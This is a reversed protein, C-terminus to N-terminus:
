HLIRFADLIERVVVPMALLFTHKGQARERGFEAVYRLDGDVQPIVLLFKSGHEWLLGVEGDVAIIVRPAPVDDPVMDILALAARTRDATVLGPSTTHHRMLDGVSSLKPIYALPTM